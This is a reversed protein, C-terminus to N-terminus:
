RVIQKTVTKSGDSFTTIVLNLGQIPSASSRGNLDVFIKKTVVKAADIDSLDTTSSVVFNATILAGYPLEPMVFSYEAPMTPDSPEDGLLEIPFGVAPALKGRPAQADQSPLTAEVLIDAKTIKFGRDPLVNLIVTQGAQPSQPTAIVEGNGATKIEVLQQAFAM